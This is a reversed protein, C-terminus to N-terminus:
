PGSVGGGKKEIGVEGDEEWQSWLGTGSQLERPHCSRGLSMGAPSTALEGCDQGHLWGCVAKGARGQGRGAGLATGPEQPQTQARTGRQWTSAPVTPCARAAVGQGPVTMPFEHQQGPGWPSVQDQQKRVGM